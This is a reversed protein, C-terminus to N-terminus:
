KCSIEGNSFDITANGVWPTRQGNNYLSWQFNKQTLRAGNTYESLILNIHSKTLKSQHGCDQIEIRNDYVATIMNAHLYVRIGDNDVCVRTNDVKVPHHNQMATLIMREIKRM